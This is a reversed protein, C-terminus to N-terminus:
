IYSSNHAEIGRNLYRHHRALDDGLLLATSGIDQILVAAFVILIISVCYGLSGNDSFTKQHGSM